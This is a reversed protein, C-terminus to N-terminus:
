PADTSSREQPAPLDAMLADPRLDLGDCLILSLRPECRGTESKGVTSPSVGCRSALEGRSM